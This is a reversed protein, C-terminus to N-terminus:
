LCGITCSNPVYALNGSLTVSRPSILNNADQLSAIIEPSAPNLVDIVTLYNSNAVTYAFYDGSVFVSQIHKLKSDDRISGVIVPSQPNSVDVIVLNNSLSAAVYAYNGSVFVDVPTHIKENDQISGAISPFGPNSIDVVTLMNGGFAGVYAYNNQIFLDGAVLLRANDTVSGVVIPSAPNSVDIVTLKNTRQSVIYAYNGRVFVDRPEGNDYISSVIFPAKPNSIDVIVFYKNSTVYAYNGSVVVSNANWLKTYDYVSGSISPSAPNSIDIVTLNSLATVYAYNRQIAVSIPRALKNNTIQDQVSGAISPCIASESPPPSPTPTTTSTFNWGSAGPNYIALFSGRSKEFYDCGGPGGDNCASDNGHQTMFAAVEYNKGQRMYHYKKENADIPDSPVLSIYTPALGPIWFPDGNTYEVGDDGPPTDYNDLTYLAIASNIQDIDAVRKINQASERLMKGGGWIISFLIGIISVVIIIELLSFGKKKNM